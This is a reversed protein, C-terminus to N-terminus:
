KLALFIGIALARNAFYSVCPHTFQNGSKSIFLRLINKSQYQKFGNKPACSIKLVPSNSLANPIVLDVTHTFFHNVL